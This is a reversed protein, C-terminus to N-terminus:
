YSARPLEKSEAQFIDEPRDTGKSPTKAEVFFRDEVSVRFSYDPRGKTDGKEVLVERQSPPLKSKNVLDWGLAKFLEGIFDTRPQRELYGPSCYESEQSAFRDSLEEIAKKAAEKDIQM